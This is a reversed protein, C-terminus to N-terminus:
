LARLSASWWRVLRPRSLTAGRRAPRSLRPQARLGTFRAVTSGRDRGLEPSALRAGSGSGRSATVEAGMFGGPVAVPGGAGSAASAREALTGRTTAGVADSAVAVRPGGAVTRGESTAAAVNAGSAPGTAVRRAARSAGVMREVSSAERCGSALSAVGAGMTAGAGLGPGDAASAARAGGALAGRTAPGSGATARRAESVGGAAIMGTPDTGVGVAPPAM